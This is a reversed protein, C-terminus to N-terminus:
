KYFPRVPGEVRESVVDKELRAVQPKVFDIQDKFQNAATCSGYKELYEKGVSLASEMEPLSKKQYAATFKEYLANHGDIDTCNPNAPAPDQGFGAIAGVAMVAASLVGTSLFRFIRNM